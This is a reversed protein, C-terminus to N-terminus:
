IIYKCLVTRPLFPMIRAPKGERKREERSLSNYRRWRADSEEQRQMKKERHARQAEEDGKEEQIWKNFLEDIRQDLLLKFSLSDQVNTILSQDAEYECTKLAEYIAISDDFSPQNLPRSSNTRTITRPPCTGVVDSLLTTYTLDETIPQKNDHLKSFFRLKLKSIM